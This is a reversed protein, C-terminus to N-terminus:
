INPQNKPIAENHKLQQFLPNQYTITGNSNAYVEVYYVIVYKKITTSIAGILTM